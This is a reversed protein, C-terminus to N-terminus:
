GGPQHRSGSIMPFQSAKRHKISLVKILILVEGLLYANWYKVKRLNKIKFYLLINDMRVNDLTEIKQM